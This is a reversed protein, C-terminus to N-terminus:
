RGPASSEAGAGSVDRHRGRDHRQHARHRARRHRRDRARHGPVVSVYRHDPQHYRRDLRRLLRRGARGAPRHCGCRRGCAPQCLRDGARRLDLRSFIDRGLDDTGLLHQPGPAALMNNVDQATPAYPAIWPAGIAVIVLALLVLIALAARLDGALWRLLRTLRGPETHKRTALAADTMARDESRRRCLASRCDFQGRHRRDGDYVGRGARDSFRPRHRRARDPQRPRSDCVGGRDGRDGGAHPEGLLSIITFLNVSVNKLGHQWLIRSMSLGKAHLTRVYQSSLVELLSGRLQRAVEAMGYAAIAIGPLLAHRIADIPSASFSKAGTAPLWNLKLSIEAVLIMALWFGPIAVGLSAILSVSKDVWGNPKIAALVGMPIGTVLALVLAIAVILLTNPFARGISTAVKEGTLLSQSLDGQVVHGLWAGYQVLFPRDLGYLNKIEAIRADTANDGALTVAIDGPVLKLLAFVMFTALLIVPLAQLLRGGIVRAPSRRAM